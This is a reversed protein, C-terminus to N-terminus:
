VLVKMGWIHLGVSHETLVATPNCLKWPSSLQQASASKRMCNQLCGSLHPDEEKLRSPTEKTISLIKWKNFFFPLRKWKVTAESCDQTNFLVSMIKNQHFYFLVLDYLYHTFSLSCLNLASLHSNSYWSGTHLTVRVLSCDILSDCMKRLLISVPLM